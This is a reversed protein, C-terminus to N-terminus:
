IGAPSRNAFAPAAALAADIADQADQHTAESAIGLVRASEHPERVEFTVASMRRAGGITMPLQWTQSRLDAIAASVHAIEPSGPAFHLVPENIAKPTSTSADLM